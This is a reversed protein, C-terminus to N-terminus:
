KGTLSRQDSAHPLDRREHNDAPQFLVRAAEVYEPYGHTEMWSWWEVGWLYVRPFGIRRSFEVNSGLLLAAPFERQQTAPPVDVLAVPEFWAEAQMEILITQGDKQLMARDFQNRVAYLWPPLPHEWRGLTQFYLQRYVATGFYERSLRMAPLWTSLEGSDTVLTPRADLRSVLEIEEALFAPTLIDPRCEGYRRFPENEVQWMVVNPYRGAFAVEAQILALIREHLHDTPLDAAWGPPYCEPWRPQKYGVVVVVEANRVQAEALYWDLASFDFVGPAPEVDDWYMPLRIQRVGLDDLMDIYLAQPDMGLSRAFRPSYTVGWVVPSTAPFWATMMQMTLIAVTGLLAMVLIVPHRRALAPLHRGRPRQTGRPFTFALHADAVNTHGRNQQMM